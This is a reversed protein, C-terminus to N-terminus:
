KLAFVTVRVWVHETAQLTLMVYGEPDAPFTPTVALPTPTQTSLTIVGGSATAPTVAPAIEESGRGRSVIYMAAIVIVLLIILGLVQIISMVGTIILTTTPM